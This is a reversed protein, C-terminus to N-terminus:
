FEREDRKMVFVFLSIDHWTTKGFTKELAFTQDTKKVDISFDGLSVLSSPSM